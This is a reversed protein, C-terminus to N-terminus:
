PKRRTTTAATATTASRHPVSTPDAAAPAGTRGAHSETRHRAQRGGAATRRGGASRDRPGGNERSGSPGADAGVADRDDTPADEPDIGDLNTKHVNGAGRSTGRGRRPAAPRTSRSTRASGLLDFRDAPDADDIAPGAPGFDIRPPVAIVDPPLWTSTPGLTDIDPLGDCVLRTLYECVRARPLSRRRLWWDGAVHVMGVMGYAWVEAPGSDSGGARLGEGLVVAIRRSIQGVFDDITAASGTEPVARQVLFRYVEPESEVFRLYADIASTVLERPAVDARLVDDLAADLLSLSFASIADVLGARDGFHRYLIPKTVGAAAAMQDMSAGPGERRIVEIAAGLLELRRADRRATRDVPLAGPRLRKTTRAARGAAERASGRIERPVRTM